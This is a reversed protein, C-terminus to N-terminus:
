CTSIGTQCWSSRSKSFGYEYTDVGSLSNSEPLRSIEWIDALVFLRAEDLLNKPELQICLGQVRLLLAEEAKAEEETLSTHTRQAVLYLDECYGISCLQKVVCELQMM